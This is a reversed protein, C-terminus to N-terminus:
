RTSPVSQGGVPACDLLAHAAPVIGTEPAGAAIWLRLADLEAADFPPDGIPMGLGPVDTLGITRAAVKRWLFSGEPDGPAVRPRTPDMQSPVGVLSAYAVGPALRLDAQSVAAGHCGELACGHRAFLRREIAAFTDPPLPECPCAPLAGRARGTVRRRSAAVDAIEACWRADGSTVLVGIRSVGPTVLPAICRPLALTFRGAAARAVLRARVIRGDCGPADFRFSRGRRTWGSSPLDVM